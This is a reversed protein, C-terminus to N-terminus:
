RNKSKVPISFHVRFRIYRTNTNATNTNATTTTTIRPFPAIINGKVTAIANEIIFEANAGSLYVIDFVNYQLWVSKYKRFDDGYQAYGDEDSRQIKKNSDFFEYAKDVDNWGCVEGDLICCEINPVSQRIAKGLITYNHDSCQGNRTHM